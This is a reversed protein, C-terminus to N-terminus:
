VHSLGKSPPQRSLFVRWKPGRPPLSVSWSTSKNFSDINIMWWNLHHLRSRKEKSWVIHYFRIMWLDGPNNTRKTQQGQWTHVSGTCHVLSWSVVWSHPNQVRPSLLNVLPCILFHNWPHSLDTVYWTVDWIESAMYSKLLTHCMQAGSIQATWAVQKIQIECAGARVRLDLKLYEKCIWHSVVLLAKFFSKM